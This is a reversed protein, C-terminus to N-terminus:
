FPFLASIFFKALFPLVNSDAVAGTGSYSIVADAVQTSLITNNSSIDAPRVIGKIRVYEQGQNLTLVKEGRVVLNGNPLVEAITVGINGTLTNSQTSSGDGAFTHDSKLDFALNNNTNSSLPLIGPTNFQPTAGLITPNTVSNDNSKTIDTTASKSANTSESLVITLIDGVRRAKYDEFLRVDHGAQYIAGNRNQAPPFAVPRTAAYEPDRQPTTQCGTLVSIMLLVPLLVIYKTHQKMM